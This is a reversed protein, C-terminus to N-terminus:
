PFQISRFSTLAIFYIVYASRREDTTSCSSFIVLCQIVVQEINLRNLILLLVVLLSYAKWV